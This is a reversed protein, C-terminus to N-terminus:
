HSFPSKSHWNQSWYIFVLKTMKALWKWFHILLFFNKQFLDFVINLVLKTVKLLNASHNFIRRSYFKSLIINFYIIKKFIKWMVHDFMAKTSEWIQCFKLSDAWCPDFLKKQGSIASKWRPKINFRSQNWSYSSTLWLVLTIYVVIQLKGQSIWNLRLFMSISLINGPGLSALKCLIM